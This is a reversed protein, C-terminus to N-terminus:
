DSLVTLISCLCNDGGTVAYLELPTFINLVDGPAFIAGNNVLDSQKNGTLINVSGANKVVMVVMPPSFDVLLQPTSSVVLQRTQVKRQGGQLRLAMAFPNSAM